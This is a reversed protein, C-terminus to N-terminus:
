RAEGGGPRSFEVQIHGDGLDDYGLVQADGAVDLTVGHDDADTIRGSLEAV